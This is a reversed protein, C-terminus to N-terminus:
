KVVSLRCREWWEELWSSIRRHPAVDEKEVDLVGKDKVPSLSAGGVDSVAQQGQTRVAVSGVGKVVVAAVAVRVGESKGDGDSGNGGEGVGADDAGGEGEVGVGGCACGVVAVAAAVEVVDDVDGAGELKLASAMALLRSLLSLAALKMLVAWVVVSVGGGVVAVGKSGQAVGGAENVCSAGELKLVLAASLLLVLSRGSAKSLPAASAGGDMPVEGHAAVLWLVLTDASRGEDDTM